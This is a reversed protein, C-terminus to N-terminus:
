YCQDFVVSIYIAFKTLKTSFIDTTLICVQRLYYVEHPDFFYEENQDKSAREVLEGLDLDCYKFNKTRFDLSPNSGVHARIVNGSLKNKLYQSDKWLQLCPGLDTQRLVAPRHNKEIYTQFKVQDEFIPIENDKEENM